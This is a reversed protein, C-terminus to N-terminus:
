RSVEGDDKDGFAIFIIGRFCINLPPDQVSQRPAALYFWELMQIYIFLIYIYIASFYICFGEGLVSTKKFKVFNKLLGFNREPFWILCSEVIYVQKM